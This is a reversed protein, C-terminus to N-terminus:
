RDRDSLIPNTIPWNINLKPDNWKLTFQKNSGEYYTSQKYHFIAEDTLILHGNGFKPPILVQLNNKDSLTFSEWQLYQDTDKNNNVVVLYFAGYVCSILKWTKEDGHIGKLVNRRSRSIDDQVFHVDNFFTEYNKETFTEIYEGRFDEFVPINYILKVGSLKTDKIIM